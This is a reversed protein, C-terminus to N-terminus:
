KRGLCADLVQCGKPHRLEKRLHNASSICGLYELEDSLPLLASADGCYAELALKRLQETTSFHVADFMHVAIQLHTTDNIILQSYMYLINRTRPLEVQLMYYLVAYLQHSLATSHEAIKQLGSNTMLASTALSDASLEVVQLATDVAQQVCEVLATYELSQRVLECGYLRLKRWSPKHTSIYEDFM